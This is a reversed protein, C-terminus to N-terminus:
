WQANFRPGIYAGKATGTLRACTTGNDPTLTGLNEGKCKQDSFLTATWAKNKNRFGASQWEYIWSGYQFSWCRFPTAQQVPTEACGTAPGFGIDYSSQLRLVDRQQALASTTASILLFLSAVTRQFRLNETSMRSFIVMMTQM